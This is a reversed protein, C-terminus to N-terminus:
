MRPSRFAVVNVGATAGSVRSSKLLIEFYPFRGDRDPRVYQRLQAMSRANTVFEGGGETGEVETGSIALVSGTRGLNPLFAIQCYSVSSDSRYTKPEGPRPTRNEFYSRRTQNDFGFHFNLQGDLLEVWPNARSSGLLIVNDYKMQRINLDRASSIFTRNPSGGMLQALRYAFTVNALSTFRRQAALQAFGRLAPNSSLENAQAWVDPRLYEALTLQRDLLEQYLSLSSDSVVIDTRGGGPLLQSWLANLNPDAFLEPDPARASWVRAACWLAIVALLPASAALTWVTYRRLKPWFRPEAEPPGAAERDAAGREHFVPTYKGKPIELIVPESAGDSAFYQELKRRAQSATVRVINDQSTDYFESRGFVRHGIEQEHLDAANEQLTRECVYVLFERLRASKEFQHSWVIRNLLARWEASGSARLDNSKPSVGM